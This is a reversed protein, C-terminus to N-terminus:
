INEKEIIIKILNLENDCNNCKYTDTYYREYLWGWNIKFPTHSYTMRGGICAKCTLYSRDTVLSTWNKM